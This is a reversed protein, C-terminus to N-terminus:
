SCKYNFYNKGKDELNKLIRKYNMHHGGRTQNHLADADFGYEYQQIQEACCAEVHVTKRQIGQKALLNSIIVDDALAADEVLEKFDQIMNKIWKAKVIVAGYGELVDVPTGHNRPYRRQFYNEFDFGSVGWASEPDSRWWKILNLALKPDYHTDDDLYIILDDPDLHLAPSIVKTGPGLDECERNIKLKTGFIPPVIGDWNPFRKYTQPINVWVEHCTQSELRTVVNQLFEFRSPITTLSIVVKM